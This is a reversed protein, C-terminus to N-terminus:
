FKSNVNYTKQSNKAYFKFDRSLAKILSYHGGLINGWTPALADEFDAMFVSTSISGNLANVVTIRTAPATLEVCRNRLIKPPPDVKWNAM